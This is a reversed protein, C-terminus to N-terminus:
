DDGEAHPLHWHMTPVTAAVYETRPQWPVLHSCLWPSITSGVTSLITSLPFQDLDNRRQKLAAARVRRLHSSRPANHTQSPSPGAYGPVRAAWAPLLTKMASLAASAPGGAQRTPCHIIETGPPSRAEPRSEGYCRRTWLRNARTYLYPLSADPARALAVRKHRGAGARHRHRELATTGAPIAM